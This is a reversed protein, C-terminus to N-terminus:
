FSKRFSIKDKTQEVFPIQRCTQKWVKKLSKRKWIKWLKNSNEISECNLSQGNILKECCGVHYSAKDVEFGTKGEKWPEDM